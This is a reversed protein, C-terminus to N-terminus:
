TLRQKEPELAAYRQLARGIADILVEEHFPKNLYIYDELVKLYAFNKESFSTLFVVPIPHEFFSQIIIAVEIGNLEGHIRIDMLVLDPDAKRIERVAEDSSTAMGVIAFGRSILRCRVDEAVISEDEVIFIRPVRKFDIQKTTTEM